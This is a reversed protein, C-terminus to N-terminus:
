TGGGILKWPPLNHTDNAAGWSLNLYEGEYSATPLLPAVRSDVELITMPCTESVPDASSTQVISIALATVIVFLFHFDPLNKM